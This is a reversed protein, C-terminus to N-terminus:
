ALLSLFVPGLTNLIDPLNKGCTNGLDTLIREDRAPGAVALFQLAQSSKRFMSFAADCHPSKWYPENDCEMLVFCDRKTWMSNTFNGNGFLLVPQKDSCISMLTDLRDTIEIGCDSYIVIDGENLDKMSELIIFPKWLWYGIGKTQGM